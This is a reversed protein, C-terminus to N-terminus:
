DDNRKDEKNAVIANLEHRVRHLLQIDERQETGAYALTLLTLPHVEIVKRLETLKQVTSIKLTRELSSLYTRSSVESLAEQSM